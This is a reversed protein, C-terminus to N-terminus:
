HLCLCRKEHMGWKPSRRPPCTLHWLWQPSHLDNAFMTLCVITQMFGRVASGCRSYVFGAAHISIVMLEGGKRQYHEFHNELPRTSYPTRLSQATGHRIDAMGEIPVCATANSVRDGVSASASAMTGEPCGDGDEDVSAGSSSTGSSATVNDSGSAVGM